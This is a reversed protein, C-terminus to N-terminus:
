TIFSINIWFIRIRVEGRKKLNGINVNKCNEPITVLGVTVVIIHSCFYKKSFYKCTCTSNKWDNINLQILSVVKILDGLSKFNLDCQNFDILKEFIVLNDQYKEKCVM